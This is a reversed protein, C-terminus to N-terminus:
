KLKNKDRQTTFRSRRLESKSDSKAVDRSVESEKVIDSTKRGGSKRFAKYAGKIGATLLGGLLLKKKYM